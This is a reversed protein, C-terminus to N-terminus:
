CSELIARAREMEFSGTTLDEPIKHALHQATLLELGTVTPVNLGCFNAFAVFWTEGCVVRWLALQKVNILEGSALTSSCQKLALFALYKVWITQTMGRLEETVGLNRILIIFILWANWHGYVHSLHSGAQRLTYSHSTWILLWLGKGKEELCPCLLCNQFSFPPYIQQPVASALRGRWRLSACPFFHDREIGRPM